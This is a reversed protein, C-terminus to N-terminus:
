AADKLDEPKLNLRVMLSLLRDVVLPVPYEGLAWGQSTRPSVGLFAAAQAQSLGLRKIAARYQNQTM